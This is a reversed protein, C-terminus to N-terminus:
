NEELLNMDKLAPLLSSEDYQTAKKSPDLLSIITKKHTASLSSYGQLLGAKIADQQQEKKALNKEKMENTFALALESAVIQKREERAQSEKEKMSRKELLRVEEYSLPKNEAKKFSAIFEEPTIELLEQLEKQETDKLDKIKCVLQHTFKMIEKLEQEQQVISAFTALSVDPDILDIGGDPTDILTSNNRFMMHIASNMWELIRKLLDEPIKEKISTLLTPLQSELILKNVRDITEFAGSKKTLYPLYVDSFQQRYIKCAKEFGTVHYPAFEDTLWRDAFVIDSKQRIMFQHYRYRYLSVPEVRGYADRLAPLQDFRALFRAHLIRENERAQHPTFDKVIKSIAAKYKGVKEEMDNM